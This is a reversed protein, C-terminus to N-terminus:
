ATQKPQSCYDIPNFHSFKLLWLLRSGIKHWVMSMEDGPKQHIKHFVSGLFTKVFCIKFTTLINSKLFITNQDHIESSIAYFALFLFHRHCLKLLDRIYAWKFKFHKEYQSLFIISYVILSTRGRQHVVPSLAHRVRPREFRKHQAKIAELRWKVREGWM